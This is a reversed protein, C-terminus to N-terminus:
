KETRKGAKQFLLYNNNILKNQLYNPLDKPWPVKPLTLIPVCVKVYSDTAIFIRSFSLILSLASTSRTM